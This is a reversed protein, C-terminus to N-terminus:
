DSASLGFDKKEKNRASASVTPLAREAVLALLVRGALVAGALQRPLAVTLLAPSAQQTVLTLARVCLRVCLKAWTAIFPREGYM